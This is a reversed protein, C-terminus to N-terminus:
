LAAAVAALEEGIEQLSARPVTASDYRVLVPDFIGRQFLAARITIFRQRLDPPLPEAAAELAEAIALADEKLREIPIAIPLQDDHTMSGIM